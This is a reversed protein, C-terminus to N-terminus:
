LRRSTNKEPTTPPRPLAASRPLCWRRRERGLRWSLGGGVCSLGAVGMGGRVGGRRAEREWESQADMGIPGIQCRREPQTEGEGRARNGASLTEERTISPSSGSRKLGRRGRVGLGEQLSQQRVISDDEDDCWYEKLGKRTMRAKEAAEVSAAMPKSETHTKTSISIQLFPYIRISDM